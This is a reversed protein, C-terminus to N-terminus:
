IKENLTKCWLNVRTKEKFKEDDIIWYGELDDEFESYQIKTFGLNICPHTYNKNPNIGFWDMVFEEVESRSTNVCLVDGDEHVAVYILKVNSMFFLKLLYLLYEECMILNFM